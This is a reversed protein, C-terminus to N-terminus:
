GCSMTNKPAALVSVIGSPQKRGSEGLVVELFTDCKFTRPGGHNRSCDPFSDARLFHRSVPYILPLLSCPGEAQKEM